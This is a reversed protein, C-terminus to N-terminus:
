NKIIEDVNDSMVYVTDIGDERYMIAEFTINVSDKDGTITCNGKVSYADTVVETGGISKVDDQIRNLETRSCKKEENIEFSTIKQNDGLINYLECGRYDCKDRYGETEDSPNYIHDYIFDMNSDVYEADIFKELTYAYMSNEVVPLSPSSSSSIMNVAIVCAVIVVVTAVAIVSIIVAKSPKKKKGPVPAVQTNNQECM